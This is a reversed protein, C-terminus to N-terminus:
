AGWLGIPHPPGSLQSPMIKLGELFSMLSDDPRYRGAPLGFPATKELAKQKMEIDAHLYCQTSDVSEHGLWLAITAHRGWEPAPEHRLQTSARAAHGAQRGPFPM